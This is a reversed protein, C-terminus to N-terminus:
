LHLSQSTILIHPYLQSTNFGETERDPAKELVVFAQEVCTCSLGLHWTVGCGILSSLQEIFLGTKEEVPLVPTCEVHNRLLVEGGWFQARDTLASLGSM